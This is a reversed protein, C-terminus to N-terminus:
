AGIAPRTAATPIGAMVKHVADAAGLTPDPM